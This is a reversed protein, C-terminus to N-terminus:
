GFEDLEDFDIVEEEPRYFDIEPMFPVVEEYEYDDYEDYEYDYEDFEDLLDDFDSEYDFESMLMSELLLDKIALLLFPQTWSQGRELKELSYKFDLLDANEAYENDYGREYSDYLSLMDLISIQEAIDKDERGAKRACSRLISKRIDTDYFDMDEFDELDILDKYTGSETKSLFEVFDESEAGDIIGLNDRYFSLMKDLEKDYDIGKKAHKTRYCECIQDDPTNSGSHGARRTPEPGACSSLLVVISIVFLLQPMIAMRSYTKVQLFKM